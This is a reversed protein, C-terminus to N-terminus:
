AWTVRGPFWAQELREHELGNSANTVEVLGEPAGTLWAGLPNEEPGWFLTSGSTSTKAAGGRGGGCGELTGYRAGM